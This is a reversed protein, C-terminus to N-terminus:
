AALYLDNGGGGGVQGCAQQWNTQDGQLWVARVNRQASLLASGRLCCHMEVIMLSAQRLACYGFVARADRSQASRPKRDQAGGSEADRRV